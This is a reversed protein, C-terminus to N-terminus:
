RRTATEVFLACTAMVTLRPAEPQSTSIVPCDLAMLWAFRPESLCFAGIPGRFQQNVRISSAATGMLDGRRQPDFM